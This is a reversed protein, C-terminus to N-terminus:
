KIVDRLESILKLVKKKRENIQEKKNLSLAEHLESLEDNLKIVLDKYRELDLAKMLEYLLGETKIKVTPGYKDLTYYFNESEQPFIFKDDVVVFLSIDSYKLRQNKIIKELFNLFELLRKKIELMALTPDEIKYSKEKAKTLIKYAKLYNNM